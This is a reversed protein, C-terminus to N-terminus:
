GRPGSGAPERQGHPQAARTPQLAKNSLPECDIVELLVPTRHHGSIAHVLSGRCRVQHALLPRLRGYAAGDAVTLQIEDIRSVASELGDTDNGASVCRPTKLAVVYYTEEADGDAISEYNPPGPFARRVLEGEVTASGPAYSLCQAASIVALTVLTPVSGM